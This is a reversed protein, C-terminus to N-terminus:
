ATGNSEESLFADLARATAQPTEGTRIIWAPRASLERIMAARTSKAEPLEDPLREANEVFFSRTYESRCPILRCGPISTRELFFIWKPSSVEGSRCGLSSPDLQYALEGNLATTPTHSDLEPFFRASDTLLKIPASLGHAILGSERKSVYTWDDALLTYGIQGLAATLTSKGAGSKGAILLGNAGQELCACHLPVVGVTTGLVGVTIPLLLTKWFCPDIAAAASLQAYVRRRLLDYTVFSRPPLFAFVLHKSGRFFTGCEAAHDRDPDVAVEIDFSGEDIPQEGPRCNAAIQLVNASNTTLVCRSGAICFDTRFPLLRRDSIATAIVIRFVRVRFRRALDNECFLHCNSSM